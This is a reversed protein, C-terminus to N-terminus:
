QPLWTRYSAQKDTSPVLFMWFQRALVNYSHMNWLLSLKCINVYLHINYSVGCAHLSFAGTFTFSFYINTCVMLRLSPYPHTYTIYTVDIMMLCIELVCSSTHTHTHTHTHTISASRSTSYFFHGLIHTQLCMLDLTRCYTFGSLM